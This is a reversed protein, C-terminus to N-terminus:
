FFYGFIYKGAVILICIAVITKIVGSPMYKQTLAGLYIGAFGGIGLLGGLLWDPSILLSGDSRFLAIVSFSIVGIVSTSFTTLLAAGAVTYVPLGFFTVLIPVILAGGGIGYTGGIIGIACAIAFLKWTSAYYMEGSFNYQVKNLSFSTSSVRFSEGSNNIKQNNKKGGIDLILKGGIVLLVFGAFFKFGSPNPLYNVRLIAGIIVGPLTGALLIGVLPWVMRGERFFRYVGSPTGFINFVLNTSTVAPGTFGLISIQFPLLLFAGSIGGMSTFYSVVFAVVLPLWWYTEVGSIPFEIM